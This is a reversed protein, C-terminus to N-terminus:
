EQELIEDRRRALLAHLAARDQAYTRFIPLWIFISLLVPLPVFWMLAGSLGIQDVVIGSWALTLASITGEAMGIIARNSGRLEPPLIAQAAPWLTGEAAAAFSLVTLFGFIILRGPSESGATLYGIFTPIGVVLGIPVMTIRGRGPFRQDLRDGLWGFFIMGSILGLVIALLAGYFIPRDLELETLLTFNWSTFVLTGSKVLIENFLLYRWSKIRFLTLLDRWNTTYRSAAEKTIVRGLEPERAGRVPEQLRLMLLGTVFSAVGLLAFGTRWGEPRSEALTPLLFVAILAGLVGLSRVIGTARGRSSNDFMDSILSFAAPAFVGLGLGALLRLLLLQPFSGAFSIALTWLGWLGTFGVLLWKRSYRDAAFGWVPLMLTAALRGAGLVTGLQGITAGLAAYMYPWLLALAGNEASDVMAAAALSVITTTQKQPKTDAEVAIPETSVTVNKNIM